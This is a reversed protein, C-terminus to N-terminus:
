LLNGQSDYFADCYALKGYPNASSSDDLFLIKIHANDFDNDTATINFIQGKEFGFRFYYDGGM